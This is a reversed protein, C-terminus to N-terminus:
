VQNPDVKIREILVDRLIVIADFSFHYESKDLKLGRKYFREFVTTLRDCLEETTAAYAIVDDM